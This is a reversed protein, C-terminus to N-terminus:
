KLINKVNMTPSSILKICLVNTYVNEMLLCNDQDRCNCSKKESHEQNKLIWAKHQKIFNKMNKMSSYNIKITNLNIIKIFSNNRPFHKRILKLFEKGIKSKVNLSFPPNFWMVKRNRNRRTNQSTKQFKLTAQHGSNKLATEYTIKAKNFDTWWRILKFYTQQDNIAIAQHNVTPPQIKLTYISTPTNNPKRFPFYKGTNLNFTVDLIQRLSTRVSQSLCDKM